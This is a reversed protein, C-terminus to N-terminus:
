RMLCPSGGSRIALHSRKSVRNQVMLPVSRVPGNAQFTWYWCQGTRAARGVLLWGEQIMPAAVATTDGRIRLGGETESEQGAQCGAQKRCLSFIANTTEKQERSNVTEAGTRQSRQGALRNKALEQDALKKRWSCM